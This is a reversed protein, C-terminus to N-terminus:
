QKKCLYTFKLFAFCPYIMVLLNLYKRLVRYSVQDSEKLCQRSILFSESTFGEQLARFGDSVLVLLFLSPVRYSVDYLGAWPERM